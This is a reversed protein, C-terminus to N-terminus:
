LDNKIIKEIEQINTTLHHEGKIIFIRNDKKVLERIKKLMYNDRFKNLERTAKNICNGKIVPNFYASCDKDQFEEKVFKQFLNKINSLSFDYKKWKFTEKLYSLIDKDSYNKDFKNSNILFSRERVFFYFFAFDKSYKKEIFMVEDEFSPDNSLLPINKQKALFSVYGMDKGRTISEQEDSFEANNFNDEVLVIDPNFLNIMDGIKKIIQINKTHASGIFLIRKNQNIFEKAIVDM